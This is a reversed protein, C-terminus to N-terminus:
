CPMTQSQMAFIAMPFACPQHPTNSGFAASYQHLLGVYLATLNKKYDTVNKKLQLISLEHSATAETTRKIPMDLAVQIGRTWWLSFSVVDAQLM